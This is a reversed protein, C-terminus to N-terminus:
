WGEKTSLRKFLEIKDNWIVPKSKLILELLRPCLSNESKRLPTYSKYSHKWALAFATFIFPYAVVSKIPERFKHQESLPNFDFQVRTHVGRMVTVKKPQRDIMLSDVVEKGLIGRTLNASRGNSCTSKSLSYVFAVRSCVREREKEREQDYRITANSAARNNDPQLYVSGQVTPLLACM